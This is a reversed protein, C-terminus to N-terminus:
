ENLLADKSEALRAKEKAGLTPYELDLAELQERILRGVIARTEWQTDAPVIFWPAQDTATEGIAEEYCRMYDKWYGREKIDSSSFKWNKEPRDIRELFREKQQDLSMHLYFKMITTGQRALHAEFERISQYRM